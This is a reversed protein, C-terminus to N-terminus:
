FVEGKLHDLLLLVGSDPEAESVCVPDGWPAAGKGCSYIWAPLPSGASELSM